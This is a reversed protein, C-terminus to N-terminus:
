FRLKAIDRNAEDRTAHWLELEREQQKREARLTGVERARSSRLMTSQRDTSCSVLFPLLLVLATSAACHLVSFRHPQPHRSTLM